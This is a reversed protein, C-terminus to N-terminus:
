MRPPFVFKRSSCHSFPPSPFVFVSKLRTHWHLVSSWSCLFICETSGLASPNTHEMSILSCLIPNPTSRLSAKMVKFPLIGPVCFPICSVLPSRPHPLLCHRSSLMGSFSPLVPCCMQSVGSLLPAAERICPTFCLQM